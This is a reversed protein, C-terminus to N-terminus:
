AKALRGRHALGLRARRHRLARMPVITNIAQAVPMTPVETRCPQPNKGRRSEHRMALESGAAYQRFVWMLRAPRCRLIPEQAVPELLLGITQVM